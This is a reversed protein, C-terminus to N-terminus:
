SINILKNIINIIDTETIINICRKSQFINVPFYFEELKYYSYMIILYEEIKFDKIFKWIAYLVMYDYDNM